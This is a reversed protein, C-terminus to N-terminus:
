EEKWEQWRDGVQYILAHNPMLHKFQIHCDGDIHVKYIENEYDGAGVGERWWWNGWQNFQLTIANASDKRVHVGDAPTMMNFNVVDHMDGAFPKRRILELGEKLASPDRYIRYMYLGHYNDPINLVMVQDRDYWRFDNLLSYYIHNSESWWRVTKVLLFISIGILVVNLPVFIKMPFSSLLVVMMMWFFMSAIYGYRDNEGNLLRVFYLTLVPIFAISFLIWCWGAAKIQPSLKKYFLFFLALLGAACLTLIVQGTVPEAVKYIKLAVAFDLYRTFFLYKLFYGFYNSLVETLKFKLHTETGYHGMWDHLTIKNLFLFGTILLIQPVLLRLITGAAHPVKEISNWWVMVVCIMLPTIFAMELTFLSLAFLGHIIWLIFTKSTELYRILWSLIALLFFGSLLYHFCVKWVLVEAAYPSLLFLLGAIASILSANKVAQKELLKRSLQFLLWGNLAHMFSFLLYWGWGNLDFLKYIVFSCLSGFQQNAHWGFTKLADAYTGHNFKDQWGYFDTVFGAQLAPYYILLVLLFFFVFLFLGRPFKM